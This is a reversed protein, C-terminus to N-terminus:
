KEIEREIISSPGPSGRHIIGAGLIVTLIPDVKFIAFILVLLVSAPIAALIAATEISTM